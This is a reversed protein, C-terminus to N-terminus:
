SRIAQLCGSMLAFAIDESDQTAWYSKEHTRSARVHQFQNIKQVHTFLNRWKCTDKALRLQDDDVREIAM